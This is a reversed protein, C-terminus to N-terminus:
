AGMVNCYGATVSRGGVLTQGTVTFAIGVIFQFFNIILEATVQQYGTGTGAVKGGVKLIHALPTSTWPVHIVM